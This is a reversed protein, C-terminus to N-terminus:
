GRKRRRRIGSEGERFRMRSKYTRYGVSERGQMGHREKTVPYEDGEGEEDDEDEEELWQIAECLADEAKYLKELVDERLDDDRTEIGYGM